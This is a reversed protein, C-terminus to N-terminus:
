KYRGDCGSIQFFVDRRARSLRLAQQYKYSCPFSRRGRTLREDINFMRKVGSDDNLSTVVNSFRSCCYFHSNCGRMSLSLKSFCCTHYLHFTAAYVCTQLIPLFTTYAHTITSPALASFTKIVDQASQQRGRSGTHTVGQSLNETVGGRYTLRPSAGEPKQIDVQTVGGRHSM